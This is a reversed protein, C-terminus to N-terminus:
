RDHPPPHLQRLARVLRAASNELKVAEGLLKGLERRVHKATPALSQTSNAIESIVANLDEPTMPVCRELASVMIPTPSQDTGTSSPLGTGSDDDNGSPHTGAKLIADIVKLLKQASREPIANGSGHCSQVPRRALLQNGFSYNRFQRYATSVIGPERVVSDLLAVFTTPVATPM